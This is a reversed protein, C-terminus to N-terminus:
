KYLCIYEYSGVDRKRTEQSSSNLSLFFSLRLLMVAVVVVDMVVARRWREVSRWREVVAKEIPTL